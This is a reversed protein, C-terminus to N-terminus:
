FAVIVPFPTLLTGNYLLLQLACVTVKRSLKFSFLVLPLLEECDQVYNYKNSYHAKSIIAGSLAALSVYFRRNYTSFDV